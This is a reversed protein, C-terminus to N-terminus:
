TRYGLEGLDAVATRFRRDARTVAERGRAYSRERGRRAAAALDEYADTLGDLAAAIEV